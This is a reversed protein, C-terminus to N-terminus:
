RYERYWIGPTAKLFESIKGSDYMINTTGYGGDWPILTNRVINVQTGIAISKLLIVCNTTEFTAIFELTVTGNTASGSTHTPPTAFIASQTATKPVDASTTGGVTVLYCKNGYYLYTNTTFVTNKIWVPIGNPVVFDAPYSVDGEPSTPANNINFISYNSKRLRTGSIFVEIDDISYPTYPLPVINTSSTITPTQINQTDTYPITSSNGIDQVFSGAKHVTYVGTGLTGRRLQSLINGNKTFYEIREGRIEIIGPRNAIPIPGDFNNGSTLVINVDNWHLDQALTTQKNASLRKYSVRNLMDKFQMYAIGATLINSGFTILTIQDSINPALALTISQNDDNLIYDVVPTLLTNNKIVWVYYSSIVPRDLQIIGGAVSHYYYYQASNTVLQANSTVNVTTRQIDLIDHQYNSIVQVTHTHDYATTFTIQHSIPNYTYGEGVIVSVILTKGKYTNYINRTIKVSIGSLDLTYDTGEKLQVNEVLLVISTNAVSYPVFKTPDISYTLKNSGITFYSNSPGSLINQDVRVIMNSENPLSNGIQNQL